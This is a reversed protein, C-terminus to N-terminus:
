EEEGEIDVTELNSGAGDLVCAVRRGVRGNLALSVTGSQFGHGLERREKIPMPITALQGQEWLEMARQMLDERTPPRLYAEPDLEQYELENYGVTAIFAGEPCRYVIVLSLDDFFQADAVDFHAVGAEGEEAPLTGDLLVVGVSARHSTQGDFRVRALCLFTRNQARARPHLALYEVFGDGEPILRERITIQAPRAETANGARGPVVSACRSTAGAAREFVRQCKSALEAVLRELNRDLHSLENHVPTPPPAVASRAQELTSRLDGVGAFIGLDEPNFRPAPGMFWKDISSVTIGATLYNNVELTDHRHNYQYEAPAATSAIADRLWTIFERFRALERRAVAALWTALFIARGSMALCEKVDSPDLQFPAYQPLLSWGVVEELVLHLRQCAPAIRKESYDRLKVLAETMTTEWKQLGRESMQEGSGLFDTLSESARRTLLLYTLDLIATPEHLGYHNRQKLELNRIWSTGLARAGDANDPGFWVLHMEKLLRICYWTLERCTTSIRAMDRADRQDLLPLQVYLPFLDTSEANQSAEQAHTIFTPSLPVKSVSPVTLNHGLNVPGLNYSGDLYFHICGTDDAVVMISDINAEDPVDLHGNSLDAPKVSPSMSAVIPDSHLTPWNQISEPLSVKPTSRTQSGQFAFLDTATLKHSEDALNDLLPLTRLIAHSSGPILGNRKLIDPVAKVEVKKEAPFWWVHRVRGTTAVNLAREEHGDQISHLTIRPPDHVVAISQGDPSWAIAVVQENPKDDSAVDVEWAKTGTMKWLSMRDRGGIRSILVLLDKDPCCATELLRCPSPLHVKALQAFSM